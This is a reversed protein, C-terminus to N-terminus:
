KSCEYKCNLLINREAYEINLKSWGCYKHLFCDDHVLLIKTEYQEFEGTPWPLPLPEWNYSASGIIIGAYLIDRRNAKADPLVGATASRCPIDFNSLARNATDPITSSDDRRCIARYPWARPQGKLPSESPLVAFFRPSTSLAASGMHM